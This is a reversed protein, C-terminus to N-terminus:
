ILKKGTKAVAAWIYKNSLYYKIILTMSKLKSNKSM